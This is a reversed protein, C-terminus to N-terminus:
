IAALTKNLTEVSDVNLVRSSRDIRKILGSLVKGPGVEIFTDVKSSAITNICDEWLVPESLQKVLSKRIEDAESVFRAEHNNVFPIQANKIACGKLVEEFIEGAKEMLACHSPISVNLSVVRRAGLDEAKKMAEEVAIRDGSVVIQGPCNYNAVAVYGTTVSKCLDDISKRELGLIAAMLGQGEPVAEQMIKGRAETIAVADLFSIARAAVLAAYEGLSHGVVASPIVGHKALVTFVAISAVLLCPQTKYTRNLEEKPGNFTLTAMDYGIKESADHYLRKVEDYHYHLDKLMGVYQSGQGPFVFCIGM